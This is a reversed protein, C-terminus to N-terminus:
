MKSVWFAATRTIIILISYCVFELETNIVRDCPQLFFLYISNITNFFKYGSGIQNDFGM